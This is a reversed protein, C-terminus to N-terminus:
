SRKMYGGEKKKLQKRNQCPYEEILITKWNEVCFEDFSKMPNIQHKQPNANHIYIPNIIEEIGQWEKVWNKLQQVSAAVIEVTLWCLSDKPNTRKM